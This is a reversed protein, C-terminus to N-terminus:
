LRAVRDSVTLLSKTQDLKNLKELLEKVDINDLSNRVTARYASTPNFGFSDETTYSMFGNLPMTRVDMALVCIITLKYLMVIAYM